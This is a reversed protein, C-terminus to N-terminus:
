RNVLELYQQLHSITHHSYLLKAYIYYLLRHTVLLDVIKLRFERYNAHKKFNVLLTQSLLEGALNTGIRSQKLCMVLETRILQLM